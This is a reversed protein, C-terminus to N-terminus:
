SARRDECELRLILRDLDAIAETVAHAREPVTDLLEERERVWRARLLLLSTIRHPTQAKVDKLL